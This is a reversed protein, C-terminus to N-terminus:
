EVDGGALDFMPQALAQLIETIDGDTDKYEVSGKETHHSFYFKPGLEAPAFTRIAEVMYPSHTTVLIKTGTKVLECIARAYQVQWTPHLNTEPEDLVLLTDSGLFEGRQLMDVVAIAKIGSAVNNAPFEFSDKSLVFGSHDDDYRMGGNFVNFLNVSKDTTLLDITQKM